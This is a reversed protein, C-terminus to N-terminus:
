LQLEYLCLISHRDGLDGPLVSPFNRNLGHLTESKCSSFIETPPPLHHDCLLTFLSLAVTNYM